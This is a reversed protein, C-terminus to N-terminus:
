RAEAPAALPLLADVEFGGHAGDGVRLAGGVMAVRERLGLLGHGAALVDGSAGPGADVVRVRLGDTAYGVEVRVTAGPAHRRVNTLAEQVVRYATLQTGDDVQVPTGRVVLSAPVGGRERSDAVLTELDAIGPQPARTASAVPDVDERLVGLLRRMETLATRATDGIERFRREGDATLGNTTLRGTEAQVSIMSLHHAVVDHLERAIRAREARGAHALDAARKEDREATAARRREVTRVVWGVAIGVLLALAVLAPSATSADVASPDVAPTPPPLEPTPAPESAAVDSAVLDAVGLGAALMALGTVVPGPARWAVVGAAVAVVPVLAWPMRGLTLAVPVVAVASALAVVPWARVWGSRVAVM